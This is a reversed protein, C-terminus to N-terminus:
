IHHSGTGVEEREQEFQTLSQFDQCRTTTEHEFSWFFFVDDSGLKEKVTSDDCCTHLHQSIESFLALDSVPKSLVPALNPLILFM